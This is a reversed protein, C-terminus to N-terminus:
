RTKTKPLKLLYDIKGNQCSAVRIYKKGWIEKVM